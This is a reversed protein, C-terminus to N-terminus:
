CLKPPLFHGNDMYIDFQLDAKHVQKLHIAGDVIQELSYGYGIM